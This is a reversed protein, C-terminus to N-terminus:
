QPSDASKENIKGEERTGNIQGTGYKPLANLVLLTPCRFLSLFPNNTWLFAVRVLFDTGTSNQGSFAFSPPFCCAFSSSLIRLTQFMDVTTTATFRNYILMCEEVGHMLFLSSPFGWKCNGFCKTALLAGQCYQFFLPPSLLFLFTMLFSICFFIFFLPHLSFFQFFCTTPSFIFKNTVLQCLPQLTICELNDRLIVVGIPNLTSFKYIFFSETNEIQLLILYWERYM